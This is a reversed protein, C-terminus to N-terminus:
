RRLVVPAAHVDTETENVYGGFARKRLWRDIVPIIDDATGWAVLGGADLIEQMRRNQIATPEKGERKVELGWFQGSICCVRDPAGSAGMGYTLPM